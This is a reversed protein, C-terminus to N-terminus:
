SYPLHQGMVEAVEIMHHPPDPLSPDVGGKGKSKTLNIGVPFLSSGYNYAIGRHNIGYGDDVFTDERARDHVMLVDVDGRQGYELAKGTGAAIIQLAVDHDEEFRGQLAEPLGTNDLSTPAIKFCNLAQQQLPGKRHLQLWM